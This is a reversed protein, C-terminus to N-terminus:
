AADDLWPVLDGRGAEILTEVPVWKWEWRGTVSNRGYVHIVEGDSEDIDEITDPDIM